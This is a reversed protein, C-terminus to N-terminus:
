YIFVAGAADAVASSVAEASKVAKHAIAETFEAQETLNISKDSM